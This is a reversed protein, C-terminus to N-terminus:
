KLSVNAAPSSGSEHLERLVTWEFANLGDVFDVERVHPMIRQRYADYM